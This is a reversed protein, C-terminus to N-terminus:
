SCPDTGRGVRARAWASLRVRAPVNARARGGVWVCARACHLCLPACPARADASGAVCRGPLTPLWETAGFTLLMQPVTAHGLLLVHGPLDAPPRMVGWRAPDRSWALRRIRGTPRRAGDQMAATAIDQMSSM